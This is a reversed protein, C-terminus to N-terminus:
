KAYRRSMKIGVVAIALTAAAAGAVADLHVLFLHAFLERKLHPSPVM